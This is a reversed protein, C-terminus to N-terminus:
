DRRRQRRRLQAAKRSAAQQRSEELSFDEGGGGLHEALSRITPHEFLVVIPIEREFAAELRNHIQVMNVSTGGLEFFNHEVGVKDLGLVELWIEVLRQETANRPARYTAQPRSEQIELAPLAKRDVKGNSTLPLRDLYVFASPVMYAPLRGALFERLRAPEAGPFAEPGLVRPPGFAPATPASGPPPAFSPPAGPRGAGAHSRADAQQEAVVAELTAPGGPVRGGVFIHVLDHDRDLHFLQRIPEFGVGGLPTLGIRHAFGETMLVQGMSGAELLSLDRAVEPYLPAIAELKTVLFVSFAAEDFIPQNPLGHLSRDLEVGGQLQVLRHHEPDYYWTGGQLGEVRGDKVHLYTQVPYLHEASLYRSRPTGLGEARVQRLSSLWAGFDALPIVEQQYHHYSRREAYIRKLEEEVPPAPLEVTERGNLPRLGHQKLKFELRGIPDYIANAQWDRTEPGPSPRWSPDGALRPEAEPMEPSAPTTSLAGGAMVHVLEDTGELDFRPRIVDFAVGGLSTLGLGAATAEEMLLQGMYGAELVCFGRGLEPYLPCVAALRGVFFLTFAAGAVLPRNEPTHVEIGIEEGSLL